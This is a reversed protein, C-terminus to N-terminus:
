LSTLCSLSQEDTQVLSIGMGFTENYEVALIFVLAETPVCVCMRVCMCAHVYVCVCARVCAHVRVRMCTCVCVRVYM